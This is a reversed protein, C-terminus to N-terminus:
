AMWSLDTSSIISLTEIVQLLLIFFTWMRDWSRWLHWFSRYEVFFAKRERQKGKPVVQKVAAGRGKLPEPAVFFNSDLKLPWGLTFCREKRDWCLRYSTPNGPWGFRLM